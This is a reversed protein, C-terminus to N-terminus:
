NATIQRLCAGVAALRCSKEITTLGCDFNRKIWLL